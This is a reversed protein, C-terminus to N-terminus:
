YDELFSAIKHKNSGPYSKAWIKKYHKRIIPGIVAPDYSPPEDVSPRLAKVKSRTSPLIIKLNQIVDEKKVKVELPPPDNDSQSPQGFNKDPAGLVEFTEDIFEKLEGILWGNDSRSILGNLAPFDKTIKLIEADSPKKTAITRYLLVAKQFAAVRRNKTVKVKKVRVAAERVAIKFLDLKEMPGAAPHISCLKDYEQEAWPVFSDSDLVDDCIRICKKEKPATPIFKLSVPIHANLGNGRSSSSAWSTLSSTNSFAMPEVVSLDAESHSIYFRDLASSRPTSGDSPVSFFTHVDNPIYRLKLESCLEDWEKRSAVSFDPSTTDSEREIFNFDGGMITYKAPYTRLSERLLKAQREQKEVKEESDATFRVNILNVSFPSDRAEM